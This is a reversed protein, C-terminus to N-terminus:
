TAKRYAALFTRVAQGASENIAAPNPPETEGLLMARNLPESM